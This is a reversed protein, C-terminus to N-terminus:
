TIVATSFLSLSYVGHRCLCHSALLTLFCIGHVSLLPLFNNDNTHETGRKKKIGMLM